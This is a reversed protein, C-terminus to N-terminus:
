QQFLSLVLDSNKSFVKDCLKCKVHNVGHHSAVHKKCDEEYAFTKPCKKCKFEDSPAKKELAVNKANNVDQLSKELKAVREKLADM